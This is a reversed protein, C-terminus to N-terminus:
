QIIHLLINKICLFSVGFIGSALKIKNETVVGIALPPPAGDIQETGCAAAKAREAGRFLGIVAPM